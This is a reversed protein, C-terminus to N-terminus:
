AVLQRARASLAPPGLQALNGPLSPAFPRATKSANLVWDLEGWRRAEVVEDNTNVVHAVASEMSPFTAWRFDDALQMVEFSGHRQQVFGLLHGEQGPLRRTDRVQWAGPSVLALAIANTLRDRREHCQEATPITVITTTDHDSM